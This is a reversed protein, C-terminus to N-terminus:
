RTGGGIYDIFYELESCVDEFPSFDENPDPRCLEEGTEALDDDFEEIDYDSFYEEEIAQKVMPRLASLNLYAALTAWARWVSPHDIEDFADILFNAVTERDLKGNVILGPLTSYLINSRCIRDAKPNLVVDYLPTPDGDYVAALVRHGLIDFADAFRPRDSFEPCSILRTLPRYAVPDGYEGLLFFILLVPTAKYRAKSPLAVFREMEALFLPLMEARQRSAARLAEEPLPSDDLYVRTLAKIITEPRM